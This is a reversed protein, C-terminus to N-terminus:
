RHSARSERPSSRATRAMEHYDEKMRDLNTIDGVVLEIDSSINDERGRSLNDLVRTEVGREALLSVLQAGIFGCGGTVLVKV